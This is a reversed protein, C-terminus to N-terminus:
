NFSVAGTIGNVTVTKSYTHGTDTLTISMNSDTSVNCGPPFNGTQCPLNAQFNILYFYDDGNAIAPPNAYSAITCGSDMLVKAFPAAFALLGCTPAQLYQNSGSFQGGTDQTASRDITIPYNGSSAAAIVVDPPLTITQVDALLPSSSVNYAAEITYQGPKSLDFKLM